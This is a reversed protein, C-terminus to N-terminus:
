LPRVLLGIVMGDKFAPGGHQSTRRSSGLKLSPQVFNDGGTFGNAAFNSCLGEAQREEWGYVFCSTLSRVVGAAVM